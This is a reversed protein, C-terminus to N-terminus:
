GSSPHQRQIVVENNTIAPLTLLSFADENNTPSLHLQGLSGSARDTSTWQLLPTM